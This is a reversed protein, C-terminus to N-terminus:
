WTRLIYVPYGDLSGMYACEFGTLEGKQAAVNGATQCAVASFYVSIRPASASATGSWLVGLALTASVLTLVSLLRRKM